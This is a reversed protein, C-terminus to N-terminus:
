LRQQDVAFATPQLQVVVVRIKDRAAGVDRCRGHRVGQDGGVLEGVLPVDDVGFALAVGDRAGVASAVGRGVAFGAGLKVNDGRVLAFVTRENERRGVIAAMVGGNDRRRIGSDGLSFRRDARNLRGHLLHLSEAVLHVAARVLLRRVRLFLLESIQLGEQARLLGVGLRGNVLDRVGLGLRRGM